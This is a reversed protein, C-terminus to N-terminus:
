NSMTIFIRRRATQEAYLARNYVPKKALMCYPNIYLQRLENATLCRDYIAINKLFGNWNDLYGPYSRRGIYLNTGTVNLSAVNETFAGDNVSDLYYTGTVGDCTFAAQHWQGDITIATNAGQQATNPVNNGNLQAMLHYVSGANRFIGFDYSRGTNTDKGIFWHSQTATASLYFWVVFTFTTTIDLASRAGFDIYTSSGNFSFCQGVHKIAPTAATVIGSANLGALDVIGGNGDVLPAFLRLGKSLSHGRNLVSSPVIQAASRLM